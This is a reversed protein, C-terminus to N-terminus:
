KKGNQKGAPKSDKVKQFSKEQVKIMDTFHKVYDKLDLVKASELNAKKL